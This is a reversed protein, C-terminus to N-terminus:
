GDKGKIDKQTLEKRVNEYFVDRIATSPARNNSRGGGGEAMPKVELESFIYM